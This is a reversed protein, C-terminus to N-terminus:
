IEQPSGINKRNNLRDIVGYSKTIFASLNGCVARESFKLYLLLHQISNRSEFNCRFIWLFVVGLYIWALNDTQKNQTM